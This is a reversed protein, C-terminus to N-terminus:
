IEAVDLVMKKLLVTQKQTQTHTYTQTHTHTHSHTYLPFTLTKIDFKTKNKTLNSLIGTKKIEVTNM